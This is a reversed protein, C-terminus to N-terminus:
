TGSLLPSHCPEALGDGGARDCIDDIVRAVSLLIAFRRLLRKFFVRRARRILARRLFYIGRKPPRLVRLRLLASLPRWINFKRVGLQRQRGGLEFRPNRL